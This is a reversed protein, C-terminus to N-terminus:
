VGDPAVPWVVNLPFGPQQTIDRLAQRYSQWQAYMEDGLRTKASLTDTWDSQALLTNRRGRVQDSEGQLQLDPNLVWQKQTANWFHYIGPRRPRAVAKEGDVYFGSPANNLEDYETRSIERCSRGNLIFHMESSSACLELGVKTADDFIYYYKM